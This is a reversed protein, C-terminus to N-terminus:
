KEETRKHIEKLTPNNENNLETEFKLLNSKIYIVGCIIGSIYWVFFMGVMWTWHINVGYVKLFTFMLAVQSIAGTIRGIIKSHGVEQYWVFKVIHKIM